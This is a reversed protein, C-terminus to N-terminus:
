NSLCNGAKGDVEPIEKNGAKSLDAAAGALKGELLAKEDVIFPEELPNPKPMIQPSISKLKNAERNHM